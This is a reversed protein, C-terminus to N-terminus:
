DKPAWFHEIIGDWMRTPESLTKHEIKSNQSIAFDRYDRLQKLATIATEYSNFFARNRNSSRSALQAQKQREVIEDIEDTNQGIAKARTKLNNLRNIAMPHTDEYNSQLRELSSIMMLPQVTWSLFTQQVSPTLCGILYDDAEFEMNKLDSLNEDLALAPLVKRSQNSKTQGDLHGLKIHAFEHTVIFSIAKALPLVATEREIGNMKPNARPLATGWLSYHGLLTFAQYGLYHIENDDVGCTDCLLQINQAIPTILYELEIMYILSKILGSFIVIRGGDSSPLACANIIDSRLVIIETNEIQLTFDPNLANKTVTSLLGRVFAIGLKDLSAERADGAIFNKRARTINQDPFEGLSCQDFAKLVEIKSITM